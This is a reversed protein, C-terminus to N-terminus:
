KFHLHKKLETFLHDYEVVIIEKYDCYESIWTYTYGETKNVSMIGFGMNEYPVGLYHSLERFFTVKLINRDLLCSRSLLIMKRKKDIKGLHFGTLERPINSDPEILIFNIKEIYPTLILGRIKAEKEYQILFKEVLKNNLVSGKYRDEKIESLAKSLDFVKEQATIMSASISFIIIFINRKFNMTKPQIM